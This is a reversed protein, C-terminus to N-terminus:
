WQCHHTELGGTGQSRCCSTARQWSPGMRPLAALTFGQPRFAPESGSTIPFARFSLPPLLPSLRAPLLPLPFSLLPSLPLRFPLLSRRSGEVRVLSLWGHSGRGALICTFSAGTPRMGQSNSSPRSRRRCFSPCRLLAQLRRAEGGRGDEGRGGGGKEIAEM